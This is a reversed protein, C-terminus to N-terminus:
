GPLVSGRLGDIAVRVKGACAGDGGKASAAPAVQTPVTLAGRCGRRQRGARAPSACGWRVSRERLSHKWHAPANSM